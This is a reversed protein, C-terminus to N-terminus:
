EGEGTAPTYVRSTNPPSHPTYPAQAWDYSTWVGGWNIGGYGQPVTAQGVLDDFSVVVPDAQAPAAALALLALGLLRRGWGNHAHTMATKRRSGGGAGRGTGALDGMM